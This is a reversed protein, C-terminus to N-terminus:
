RTMGCIYAGGASVPLAGNFLYMKPTPPGPPVDPAYRILYTLALYPMLNNHANGDGTTETNFAECDTISGSMTCASAAHNSIALNTSRSMAGSNRSTYRNANNTVSMNLRGATSTKLATYKFAAQTTISHVFKPTTAKITHAHGHAAITHDHSPIQTTSLTVSSTGGTTALAYNQSVGLPVRDVLNPLGFTTSGDGQGYTTGIISYLESYDDRSVNSGDCVLFGDPVVSGGFPIISGIEM